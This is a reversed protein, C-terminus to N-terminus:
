TTLSSHQVAPGRVTQGLLLEQGSAMEQPKHTNEMVPIPLPLLVPLQLEKIQMPAAGRGLHACTDTVPCGAWGWPM